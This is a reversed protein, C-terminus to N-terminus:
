RRAPLTPTSDPQPAQLGGVLFTVTRDLLAPADEETVGNEPWTAFLHVIVAVVQMMRWTLEEEGLHPLAAAILPFFDDAQSYQERAMEQIWATQDGHTRGLFRAVRPGREQLELLIEVDARLFADVLVRLDPNEPKAAAVAAELLQSRRDSIPGAVRDTVGRLVEEKSGFHYHVAAVNVDAVRTIERISTGDFGHEAFLQEAADLIRTRTDTTMSRNM